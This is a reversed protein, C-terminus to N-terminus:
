LHNLLSGIVSHGLPEVIM